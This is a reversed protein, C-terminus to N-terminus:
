SIPTGRLLICPFKPAKYGMDAPLSIQSRVPATFGSCFKLLNEIVAPDNDAIGYARHRM